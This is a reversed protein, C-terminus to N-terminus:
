PRPSRRFPKKRGSRIYNDAAELVHGISRGGLRRIATEKDAWLYDSIENERMVIEGDAEALFIVLNKSAKASVTYTMEKRFGDILAVRLGTEEFIERLATERETEGEDIHGKPISWTGSKSQYVILYEILGGPRRRYIIAGCSKEYICIVLTDFFKEVFSVASVIQPEYAITGSPAVVLKDEKDDRRHVVAIVTGTVQKVPRPVGYIYADQPEGDGGTMGPVFGYNLEYVIEPHEPHVSGLPRDVTVTVREGLCADTVSLRLIKAIFQRKEAEYAEADAGPTELYRRRFTEYENAAFVHNNLYNRFAILDNWAPSGAFTVFLREKEEGDGDARSMRLYRSADPPLIRYGVATLKKMAAAVDAGAKLGVAIDYIPVALIGRIATSGVHQIEGLEDQLVQLLEVKANNYEIDWIPTHRCLRSGSDEM